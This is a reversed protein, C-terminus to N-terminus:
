VPLGLVARVVVRIVDPPPQRLARRLVVHSRVGVRARVVAGNAVETAEAFHAGLFDIALAVDGILRDLALGDVRRRLLFVGVRRVRRHFVLQRFLLGALLRPGCRLSLGLPGRGRALLLVRAWGCRSTDSRGTTAATGRRRARLLLACRLLLM